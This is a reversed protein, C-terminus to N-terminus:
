PRHPFAIAYKLPSRGWYYDYNQWISGGFEEIMSLPPFAQTGAESIWNSVSRQTVAARFRDTQTTAWNTLFGGHSGGTIFQRDPGLM